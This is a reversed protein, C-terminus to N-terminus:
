RRLYKSFTRGLWWTLAGGILLSPVSIVLIAASFNEPGGEFLGMVGIFTFVAGCLGSAGLGMVGIALVLITFFRLVKPETDDSM